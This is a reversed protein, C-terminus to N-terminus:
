EAINVEFAAWSGELPYLIMTASYRSRIMAGFGNQADVYAVVEYRCDGIARVNYESPWSPFEATSPARLSRMVFQQSMVYAVGENREGCERLRTEVADAEAEALAKAREDRM